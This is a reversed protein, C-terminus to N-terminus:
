EFEFAVRELLSRIPLKQPCSNECRGCGICDSAKGSEACTEAYIPRLKGEGAARRNSLDFLAPINIVAPCGATCYECATCQIIDSATLIDRTKWVAELERADLPKFDSMYGLNDEMQEMNSMGSLVMEIGEFGAAFRIAYSALSGGNLDELVKKAASPMNVLRGGRVPEMVIVPIGYRRCVEYCLRSQVRDSEYDLYNFQLQVVEVGPQESLIRELVEATDHFSIGVHKVKGERKLQYAIEYANCALYKEYYATHQAHMLLFDFYEVGCADLLSDILPRIEEEKEFNPSSLKNTLVYSDRPYRSTLCERIATESKGGIYIHATDFYNFGKEMFVDIMKSFEVTDVEDGKMPLRMCGFGLKGKANDFCDYMIKEKRPSM